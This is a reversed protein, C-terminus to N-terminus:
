LRLNRDYHGQYSQGCNKLFREPNRWQAVQDERDAQHRCYHSARETWVRLRHSRWPPLDQPIILNVTYYQKWRGLQCKLNSLTFKPIQFSLYLYSMNVDRWITVNKWVLLLREINPCHNHSLQCLPRKQCWLDTTRIEEVTFNKNFM